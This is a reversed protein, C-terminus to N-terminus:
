FSDQVDALSALKQTINQEAQTGNSTIGVLGTHSINNHIEAPVLLYDNLYSEDWTFHNDERWKTLDDASYGPKLGPIPIQKCAAIADAYLFNRNRSSFVDEMDMDFISDGPNKRHMQMIETLDVKALAIQSFDAYDEVFPTGTYTIGYRDKLNQVIQAFTRDEPNYKTPKFSGDPIFVNGQWTGNATPKRMARYGDAYIRGLVGAIYTQTQDAPTIKPAPFSGEIHAQRIAASNKLRKVLLTVDKKSTCDVRLDDLLDAIDSSHGGLGKKNQEFEALLDDASSILTGNLDEIRCALGRIASVAEMTVVLSM